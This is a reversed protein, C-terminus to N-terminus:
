SEGRIARRRLYGACSVIYDNGAKRKVARREEVVQELEAACREREAAREAMIARAIPAAQEDTPSEWKVGCVRGMDRAAERAAKMVDDPIKEGSM